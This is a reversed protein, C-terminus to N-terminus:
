TSAGITECFAVFDDTCYEDSASNAAFEDWAAVYDELTGDNGLCFIILEDNKGCYSTDFAYTNGDTKEFFVPAVGVTRVVDGEIITTVDIESQFNRWRKLSGDEVFYLWFSGYGANLTASVDDFIVNVEGGPLLGVLRNGTYAYDPTILIDFEDHAVVLFGDPSMELAWSDELNGRRYRYIGDAAAAWYGRNGRGVAFNIESPLNDIRGDPFDLYCDLVAISTEDNTESYVFFGQIEEQGEWFPRADGCDFAYESDSHAATNSAVYRLVGSVKEAYISHDSSWIVDGDWEGAQYKELLALPRIDDSTPCDYPLSRVDDIELWGDDTIAFRHEYTNDWLVAVAQEGDSTQALFGEPVEVWPATGGVYSQLIEEADWEPNSYIAGPYIDYYAGKVDGGLFIWGNLSDWRYPKYFDALEEEGSLYDAAIDAVSPIVTVEHESSSDVALWQANQEDPTDAALGATKNCAALSIAMAAVLFMCLIRRLNKM